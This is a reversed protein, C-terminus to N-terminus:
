DGSTKKQIEYGYGGEIQEGQEAVVPGAGIICIAVLWVIALAIIIRKM